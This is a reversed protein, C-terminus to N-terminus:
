KKAEKAKRREVVQEMERRIFASRSRDEQAAMRDIDEVLTEPVGSVTVTVEKEETITAM